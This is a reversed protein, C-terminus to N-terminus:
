LQEIIHDVAPGGARALTKGRCEALVAAEDRLDGVRGIRHRYRDGMEIDNELDAMERELLPLIKEAEIERGMGVARGRDMGRMPHLRMGDIQGIEAIVVAIGPEM